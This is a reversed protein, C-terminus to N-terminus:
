LQGGKWPQVTLYDIEPFSRVLSRLWFEADMRTDFLVAPGGDCCVAWRSVGYTTLHKIAQAHM